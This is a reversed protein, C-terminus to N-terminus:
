LDVVMDDRRTRIRDWSFSEVIESPSRPSCDDALGTQGALWGLLAESSGFRERLGEMDLDRDRKSLRRGDPATLLPIHAYSPQPYGLLRQLYIQRPTSSLLDRGRVVETVGMAADDVVVALQYAFVGDSRRVLFDGCETALAEAQAGYTRDVFEILDRAPDDISPVRLRMAPARVISRQAIEAASLGRCTGTYIPTGDSAHPASAVHLESRTCFCPYVLGKGRLTDLAHEYCDIRDHQYIPGKDWTLGLWELDEMLLDSWSQRCRDDLDEIRLVVTGGQSKASLWAVLCSFVNGLHM